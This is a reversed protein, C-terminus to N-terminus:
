ATEGKAWRDIAQDVSDRAQSADEVEDNWCGQNLWTAPNKIYGEQWKRSHKQKEIASLVTQVFKGDLGSRAKARDFALRAADKGTKHGAPWAEWFEQFEKSYSVPAIKTTGKPVIPTDEETDAETEAEPANRTVSSRKMERHRRVRETSGAPSQSDDWGKVNFSSEDVFQIWGLLSLKKLMRDLKLRVLRRGGGSSAGQVFGYLDSTAVKYGGRRATLLWTLFLLGSDELSLQRFNPDSLIRDQWVKFWYKHNM